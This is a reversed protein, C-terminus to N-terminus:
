KNGARCSVAHGAHGFVISPFEVSKAQKVLLCLHISQETINNYTIASMVPLTFAKAESFTKSILGGFLLGQVYIYTFFIPM